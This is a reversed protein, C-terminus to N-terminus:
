RCISINYNLKYKVRGRVKKLLVYAKRRNNICTNKECIFIIRWNELDLYSKMEGLNFFMNNKSKNNVDIYYRIYLYGGERVNAMLKRVKRKKSIHKNRKLDLSDSAFIFDQKDLTDLEYFNKEKIIVKDLMDYDKLRQKLGSVKKNMYIGGNLLVKNTEYCTVNFNNKVFPIVNKGDKCDTILVDIKRNYQSKILNIFNNINKESDGFISKTKYTRNIARKKKIFVNNDKKRLLISGVKHNHNIKNYPHSEHISKRSYNERYYLIDWKKMDINNKIFNYKIIQKKNIEKDNDLYYMLYLYGGDKTSNMLKDLKENLTYKDNEQLQITRIALVLDYKTNNQTEYYNSNIIHVRKKINSSNLRNILGVTSFNDIIGGYILKKNEEYCTIKAKTKALPLVYIGDQCNPILISTDENINITKQLRRIINLQPEGYISKGKTKYRSEYLLM